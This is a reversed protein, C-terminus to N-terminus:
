LRSAFPHRAESSIFEYFTTRRSDTMEVGPLFRESLIDKFLRHMSREIAIFHALVQQVTLQAGGQYVQARLEDPCLSRSFSVTEALGRELGAAIEDRRDTVAGGCLRFSYQHIHGQAASATTANDLGKM